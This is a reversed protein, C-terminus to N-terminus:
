IPEMNIECISQLQVEHPGSNKKKGHHSTLFGLSALSFLHKGVSSIAISSIKM